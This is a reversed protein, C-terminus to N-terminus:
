QKMKKTKRLTPTQELNRRVPNKSEPFQSKMSARSPDTLKGESQAFVELRRQRHNLVKSIFTFQNISWCHGIPYLPQCPSASPPLFHNTRTWGPHQWVVCFKLAFKQRSSRVLPWRPFEYLSSRELSRSPPYNCIEQRVRTFKITRRSCGCSLGMQKEEWLKERILRVSFNKCWRGGCKWRGTFM